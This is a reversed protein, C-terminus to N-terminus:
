TDREGRDDDGAALDLLASVAVGVPSGVVVYARKERTVRPCKDDVPLIPHLQSEVGVRLLDGLADGDDLTASAGCSAGGGGLQSHGFNTRMRHLVNRRPIALQRDHGDGECSEVDALELEDDEDLREAM